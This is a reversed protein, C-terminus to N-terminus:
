QRWGYKALCSEMVDEKAKEEAAWKGLGEAVGGWFGGGGYGSDCFASSGVFTCDISSRRSSRSKYSNEAARGAMRAKPSCIAWAQEASTSPNSILPRMGKYYKTSSSNSSSNTVITTPAAFSSPVDVRTLLDRFVSSENRGELNAWDVFQEFAKKTGKGWLGDVGYTYFSLEKLAYQLQKRKLQSQSIFAQRFDTEKAKKVKVGCTLGRRKAEDAFDNYSKWEGTPEVARKCLFQNECASM